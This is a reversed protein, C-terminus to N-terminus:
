NHQQGSAAFCFNHKSAFLDYRPQIRCTPIPQYNSVLPIIKSMERWLENRMRNFISSPMWEKNNTAYGVPLQEANNFCCSNYAKDFVFNKKETVNM